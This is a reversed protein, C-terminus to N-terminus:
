PRQHEASRSYRPGDTEIALLARGRHYPDEVAIDIRHLANGYDEHVVLGERRLREALDHRPPDTTSTRPAVRAAVPLVAGRSEAYALFDRLM